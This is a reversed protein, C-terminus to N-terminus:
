TEAMLVHFLFDTQDTFSYSLKNKFTNNNFAFSIKPLEYSKKFLTPNFMLYDFSNPWGM